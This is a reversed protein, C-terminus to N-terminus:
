TKKGKVASHNEVTMPIQVRHSATLFTHLKKEAGTVIRRLIHSPVTIGVGKYKPLLTDWHAYITLITESLCV